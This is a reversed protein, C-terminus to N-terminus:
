WCNEIINADLSQAPWGVKFIIKPRTILVSRARHVPANDDQFIFDNQPCHHAVVPWLDNDISKRYKEANINGNVITLTGQRNWCICGWIVLIVKAGRGPSICQPM